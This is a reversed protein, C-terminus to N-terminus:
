QKVSEHSWKVNNSFVVRHKNDGYIVFMPNASIYNEGMTKIVDDISKFGSDVSPGICARNVPDFQTAYITKM